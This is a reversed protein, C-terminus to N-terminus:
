TPRDHRASPVFIAAMPQGDRVLVCEDGAYTFAPLLVIAVLFVVTPIKLM